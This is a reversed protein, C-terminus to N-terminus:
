ALRNRLTKEDCGLVVAAARIRGAKEVELRAREADLGLRPRGIAKGSGTGRRKARDLGARVRERIRDAEQRAVWAFVATLLEGIAPTPISRARKTHSSGSAPMGSSQWA